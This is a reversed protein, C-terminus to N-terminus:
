LLISVQRSSFGNDLLNFQLHNWINRNTKYNNIQNLVDNIKKLKKSDEDQKFFKLNPSSILLHHIGKKASELM